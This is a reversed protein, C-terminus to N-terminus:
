PRCLSAVGGFIRQEPAFVTAVCDPPALASRCFIDNQTRTEPEIAEFATGRFTM